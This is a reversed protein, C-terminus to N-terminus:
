MYRFYRVPYLSDKSTPKIYNLLATWGLTTSYEPWDVWVQREIRFYDSKSNRLYPPSMYGTVVRWNSFGCFNAENIAAVGQAKDTWTYTNNVSNVATSSYTFTTYMVTVDDNLVRTDWAVCDWSTASDPLAGTANYKTFNFESHLTILISIDDIALNAQDDIISLRFTITTPYSVDPTTFTISPPNSKETFEVTPGELQSWLVSILGSASVSATITRVVNQSSEYDTGIYLSIANNPASPTNDNDDNCAILGLAILGIIIRKM